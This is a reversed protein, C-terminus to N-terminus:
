IPGKNVPRNPKKLKLAVIMNEKRKINGKLFFYLNIPKEYNTGQYSDNRQKYCLYGSVVSRTSM